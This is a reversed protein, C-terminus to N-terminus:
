RLRENFFETSKQYDSPIGIDLFKLNQRQGMVRCGVAIVEPILQDELSYRSDPFFLNSNFIRPEVYYVGANCWSNIKSKATLLSKIACTDDIEIGGYRNEQDAKFLVMTLDSASKEHFCILSKLDVTAFTDGNLLVYPNKLNKSISILAGGTGLPIKEVFYEIPIGCYSKGFYKQIQQHKYGVILIFKQAGERVWYDLLYELFPRNNIAAMPKPVDPLIERLRTGLGGALVAVTTM